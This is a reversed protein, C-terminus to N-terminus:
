NQPIQLDSEHGCRTCIHHYITVTKIAAAAPAVNNDTAPKAPEGAPRTNDASGPTPQTTDQNNGSNSTGPATDMGTVAPTKIVQEPLGPIPPEPMVGAEEDKCNLFAAYLSMREKGDMREFYDPNVKGVKLIYEVRKGSKAFTMKAIKDYISLLRKKATNDPDSASSNADTQNGAALRKLDSRHGQGKSLLEFAWTYMKFEEEATNHHSHQLELMLRTTEEDSATTVETALVTKLGKANAYLVYSWGDIVMKKDGVRIYAVPMVKRFTVISDHYNFFDKTAPDLFAKAHLPHRDFEAPDIWKCSVKNEM